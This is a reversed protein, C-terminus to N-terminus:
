VVTFVSNLLDSFMFYSDGFSLIKTDTIILVEFYIQIQKHRTLLFAM